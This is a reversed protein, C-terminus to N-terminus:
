ASFVPAWAHCECQKPHKFQCVRAKEWRGTRDSCSNVLWRCSSPRSRGRRMLHGHISCASSCYM